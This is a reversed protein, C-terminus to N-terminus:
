ICECQQALCDVSSKCFQFEIDMLLLKKNEGEETGSIVMRRETETFKIIRSVEYIHFWASNERKTVPKNWKTYHEWTEDM